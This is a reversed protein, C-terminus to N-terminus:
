HDLFYGGGMSLYGMYHCMSLSLLFLETPPPFLYSLIIPLILILM